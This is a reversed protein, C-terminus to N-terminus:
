AEDLMALISLALTRMVDRDVVLRKPPEGGRIPLEARNPLIEDPTVDLATALKALSQESPYSRGNLYTSVNNRPLDASRAFKAIILKHLRQGFEQKTLHPTPTDPEETM